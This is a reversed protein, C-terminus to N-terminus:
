DANLFGTNSDVTYSAGGLGIEPTSPGGTGASTRIIDETEFEVVDMEPTVYKEKM